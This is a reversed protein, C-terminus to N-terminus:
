IFFPKLKKGLSEPMYNRVRATEGREYGGERKPESPTINGFWHFGETTYGVPRQYIVIHRAQPQGAKTLGISARQIVDALNKIVQDSACLMDPTHDRAQFGLEHSTGRHVPIYLLFDDNTYLRRVDSFEKGSWCKCYTCGGNKTNRDAMRLFLEMNTGHGDGTWEIWSQAHMWPISRATEEHTNIFVSMIQQGIGKDKAMSTVYSIGKQLALMMAKMNDPDADEPQDEYATPFVVLSVGKPINRYRSDALEEKKQRAEEELAPDIKTVFTSFRNVIAVAKHDRLDTYSPTSDFPNSIPGSESAVPIALDEGRIIKRFIEKQQDPSGKPRRARAPSYFDFYGHRKDLEHGDYVIPATTNPDWLKVPIIDVFRLPEGNEGTLESFEFLQGPEVGTYDGWEGFSKTKDTGSKGAIATLVM